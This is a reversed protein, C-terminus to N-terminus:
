CGQIGLATKIKNIIEIYNNPLTNQKSCNESVSLPQLNRFNFAIKQENKNSLNFFSCPVIHDIHWKKGYNEWSMSKTFKKELHEMLQERTCGVLLATNKSKHGSILKCIRNKTSIFIRYEPSEDRRKKEYNNKWEKYDPNKMRKTRYKLQVKKCAETKNYILRKQHIREAYEPNREVLKKHYEYANNIKWYNEMYKRCHERYEPNKRKERMYNIFYEKRLKDKERKKLRYEEDEKWRKKMYESKCKKCISYLGDKSGSDKHFESEQKLLNCRSCRKM